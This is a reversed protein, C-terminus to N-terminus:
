RESRLPLGPVLLVDFRGWDNEIRARRLADYEPSNWFARAADMSRWRALVFSEPVFDGELVEVGQGIALYEGGYKEYLPALKSAYGEMFAERDRVEGLVILYAPAQEEAAAPAPTILSLLVAILGFKM